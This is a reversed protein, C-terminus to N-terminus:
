FDNLFDLTQSGFNSFTNLFGLKTKELLRLNEQLFNPRLQKHLPAERLGNKRILNYSLNPLTNKLFRDFIKVERLAM